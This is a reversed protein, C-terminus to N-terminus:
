VHRDDGLVLMLNDIPIIARHGANVMAKYLPETLSGLRPLALNGLWFLQEITLPWNGVLAEILACETAKLPLRIKKGHPNHGPCDREMAMRLAQGGIDYYDNKGLYIYPAVGEFVWRTPDYVMDFPCDVWGHPVFGASQHTDYAAATEVVPGLWHGYVPRGVIMHKRVCACAIAYCNGPWRKTPVVIAEVVADVDFMKGPDDSTTHIALVDTDVKLTM